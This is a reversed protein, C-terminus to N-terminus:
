SLPHVDQIQFMLSRGGLNIRSTDGKKLGLLNSGLPSLVSIKRREPDADRPMVLLLRSTSQDELDFLDVISGPGARPVKRRMDGKEEALRELQHLASALLYPRNYIQAGALLSKNQLKWHYYM